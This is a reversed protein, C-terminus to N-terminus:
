VLLLVKVALLRLKALVHALSISGFYKMKGRLYDSLWSAIKSSFCTDIGCHVIYLIWVVVCWSTERSHMKTNYNKNQMAWKHIYKESSKVYCLSPPSKQMIWRNLVNEHSPRPRNITMLENIFSSVMLNAALFGALSFDNCKLSWNARKLTM